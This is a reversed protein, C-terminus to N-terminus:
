ASGFNDCDSFLSSAHTEASLQFGTQHQLLTLVLELVSTSSCNPWLQLVALSGRLNPSFRLRCINWNPKARKSLIQGSHATTVFSAASKLHYMNRFYISWLLQLYSRHRELSYKYVRMRCITWSYHDRSTLWHPHSHWSQVSHRLKEVKPNPSLQLLIPPFESYQLWIFNWLSELSLPFKSNWYWIFSGHLM